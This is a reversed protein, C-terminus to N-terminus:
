SCKVIKSPDCIEDNETDDETEDEYDDDDSEHENDSICDDTNIISNNDKIKELIKDYIINDAFMGDYMTSKTDKETISQKIEVYKKFEDEDDLHSYEGDQKLKQFIIFNTKFDIPINDIDRKKESIENMFINFTNKDVKFKRLDNDHKEKKKKHEIELLSCKHKSDLFENMQEEYKINKTDINEKELEIKARLRNIEEDLIKNHPHEQKQHEQAQRKKILVRKTTQNRQNNKTSVDSQKIYINKNMNNIESSDISHEDSQEYPIFVNIDSENDRRLLVELEFKIRSITVNNINIKMNKEDYLDLTKSNIHYSNIPYNNDYETIKIDNIINIKNKDCYLIIRIFSMITHYMCELADCVALINDNKTVIFVM